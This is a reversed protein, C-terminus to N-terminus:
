KQQYQCSLSSLGSTAEQAPSDEERPDREAVPAVSATTQIPGQLALRRQDAPADVELVVSGRRQGPAAPDGSGEPGGEVVADAGGPSQVALDERGAHVASLTPTQRPSDCTRRDASKRCLYMRTNEKSFSM